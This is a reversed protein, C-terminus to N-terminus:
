LISLKFALLNYVNARLDNKLKLQLELQRMLCTYVFSNIQLLRLFEVHTQLWEM